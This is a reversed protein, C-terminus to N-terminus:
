IKRDRDNQRGRLLALDAAREELLRLKDQLALFSPELGLTRLRHKRGTKSHVVGVTQGRQYLELGLAKLQTHLESRSKVQKFILALDDALQEKKNLRQGRRKAEYEPSSVSKHGQAVRDERRKQLASPDYYKELGLEPFREIKYAEIAQQIRAFAAKKLWLRKSGGVANASVLLHFHLHDADDHLKGFVMQDPARQRAYEEALDRLIEVQRGRPVSDIAPLSIVEHYLYNGNSRKPLLEANTQLEEIVADANHPDSWMNQCFVPANADNEKLFYGVLQRFSPTKRAM